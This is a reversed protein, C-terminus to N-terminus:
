AGVVDCPCQAPDFSGFQGLSYQDAQINVVLCAARETAVSTSHSTSASYMPRLGEVM